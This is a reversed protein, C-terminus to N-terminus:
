YELKLSIPYLGSVLEVTEFVFKQKPSEATIDTLSTVSILHFLFLTNSVPSVDAKIFGLDFPFYLAM